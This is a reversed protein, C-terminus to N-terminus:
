KIWCEYLGAGVSGYLSSIFQNINMKM